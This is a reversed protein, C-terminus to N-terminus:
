EAIRAQNPFRLAYVTGNGEHGRMAVCDRKAIEALTVVFGDLDYGGAARFLNLIEAATEVSLMDDGVSIYEGAVRVEEDDDMERHAWATVASVVDDSLSSLNDFDIELANAFEIACRRVTGFNAAHDADTTFWCAGATGAQFETFTEDTGHFVSVTRM